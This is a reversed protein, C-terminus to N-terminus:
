GNLNNAWEKEATIISYLRWHLTASNIWRRPTIGNTVNHFKNPWLQHYEPLYKEGGSELAAGCCREGRFRWRCLNAM